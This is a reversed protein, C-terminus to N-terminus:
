IVSYLKNVQPHNKYHARVFYLGYPPLTVGALRRDEERIIQLINTAALREAALDFITGVIIRIMNHLFSQGYIRIKYLGPTEETKLLQASFIRRIPTRKYQLSKKKSLSSFDHEGILLKLEAEIRDLDLSRPTWFARKEYLPRPFETNLFWYEYERGSCSFQAHFDEPMAMASVVGLGGGALANTSRILKHFNDITAQSSFSVTMGLAHVGTDTRGAAEVAIPERLYISLAKELSEQVTRGERQRQYGYFKTGDYQVLLLTKPM